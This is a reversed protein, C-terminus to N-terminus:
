IGGEGSSVCVGNGDVLINDLTVVCFLIVLYLGCSMWM